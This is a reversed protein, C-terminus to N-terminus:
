YNIRNGNNDLTFCGNTDLGNLRLMAEFENVNKVMGSTKLYQIYDSLLTARSNVMAITLLGNALRGDNIARETNFASTLKSHDSALDYFEEENVGELGKYTYDKDFIDIIVGNVTSLTSKGIVNHEQPSTDFQKRGFQYGSYQWNWYATSLLNSQALAWGEKWSVRPDAYTYYGSYKGGGTNFGNLASYMVWHSWEPALNILRSSIDADNISIYPTGKTVLGIDSQAINFSNSLQQHKEYQVFIPKFEFDDRMKFSTNEEAYDVSKQVEDVTAVFLEWTKAASTLIAADTFERTTDVNLVKNVPIFASTIVRYQTGSKNILSGYRNNKLVYRFYLQNRRISNPVDLSVNKIYGSEDTQLTKLPCKQGDLDYYYIELDTKSFPVTEVKGDTDVSQAQTRYSEITITQTEDASVEKFCFFFCFILVLLILRRVRM